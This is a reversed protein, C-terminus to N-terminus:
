LILEIVAQINKGLTVPLMLLKKAAMKRVEMLKINGYKEIYRSIKVKM